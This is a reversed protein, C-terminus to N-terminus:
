RLQIREEAFRKRIAELLDSKLDGADQFNDCWVKLTLTVGRRDLASVPCGVYERAKPHQKVLDLLINRVRELDAGPALNLPLQCVLRVGGFSLNISTQSAMASNPIVIHRSDPTRLITYGLNLSEVVGSELGTPATVQIFDGISFPRYLLLSIGAILNGLTNQAALGLVVSVVGVSALWAQGMSRLAPVLYAFTLLAFVYVGARALQGLFRIATPDAPIHKPRSLVRRIALNLARGILWALLGIL